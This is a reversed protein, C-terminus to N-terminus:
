LNGPYDKTLYSSSGDQHHFKLTLQLDRVQTHYRCTKSCTGLLIQWEVETEGSLEKERYAGEGIKEVGDTTHTYSLEAEISIADQPIETVRLTIEHENAKTLSVQIAPDAPRFDELSDENKNAVKAPQNLSKVAWVGGGVALLLVMISILLTPKIKMLRIHKIM